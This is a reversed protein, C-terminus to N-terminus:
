TGVPRGPRRRERHETEQTVEEWAALFGRHSLSNGFKVKAETAFQDKTKSYYADNRLAHRLWQKCAAIISSKSVPQRKPKQPLQFHKRLEVEHTKLELLTLSAVGVLSPDSALLQASSEGVHAIFRDNTLSLTAGPLQWVYTPVPWNRKVASGTPMEFRASGAQCRILGAAFADRLRKDMAQPDGNCEVTILNIVAKTRIWPLANSAPDQKM